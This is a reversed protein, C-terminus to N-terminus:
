GSRATASSRPLGAARRDARLALATWLAGAADLVTMLIILPNAKTAVVFAGVLLPASFRTFVSARYLVPISSFRGAVMYFIAMYLLVTGFVRLMIDSSTTIGAVRLALGPALMLSLGCVLVWFGFYFFSRGARTM